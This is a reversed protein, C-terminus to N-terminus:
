SPGIVFGATTVSIRNQSQAFLGSFVQRFNLRVRGKEAGFIGRSILGPHHPFSLIM